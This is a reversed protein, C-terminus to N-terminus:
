KKYGTVFQRLAFCIMEVQGLLGDQWLAERDCFATKTVSWIM